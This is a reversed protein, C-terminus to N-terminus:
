IRTKRRVRSCFALLFRYLNPTYLLDYDFCCICTHVCMHHYLNLVKRVVESKLMMETSYQHDIHWEVVGDFVFKLAPLNDVLIRAIHIAFHSRLVEQDTPSPLIASCLEDIPPCQSSSSVDSLDCSNIRDKVAYSHFYHLSRAQRDIRMHRPKVTKDINDGVLKYGCGSTSVNAQKLPSSSTFPQLGPSLQLPQSSPLLSTSPQIPSSSSSSAPSFPPAFPSSFSLDPHPPSSMAVTSPETLESECSIDHSSCFSETLISPHVVATSDTLHSADPNADQM